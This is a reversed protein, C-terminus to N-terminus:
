GKGDGFTVPIDEKEEEVPQAAQEVSSNTLTDYAQAKLHDTWIKAWHVDNYNERCNKKWIEWLNKIFGNAILTHYEKVETPTSIVGPHKKEIEEYLKKKEKKKM